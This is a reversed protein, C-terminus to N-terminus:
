TARKTFMSPELVRVGVHIRMMVVQRCFLPALEPWKDDSMVMNRLPPKPNILVRYVSEAVARPDLGM